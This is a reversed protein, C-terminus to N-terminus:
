EGLNEAIRANIATLDLDDLLKYEDPCNEWFTL